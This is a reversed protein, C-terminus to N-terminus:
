VCAQEFDQSRPELLGLQDKAFGSLMLHIGAIKGGFALTVLWPTKLDFNQVTM